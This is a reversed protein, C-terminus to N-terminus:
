QTTMQHMTMVAAYYVLEDKSFKNFEFMSQQILFHKLKDWQEKTVLGEAVIPKAREKITLMLQKVKDDLKQEDTKIVPKFMKMQSLADKVTRDHKEKDYASM